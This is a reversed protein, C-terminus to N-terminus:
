CQTSVRLMSTRQSNDWISRCRQKLMKTMLLVNAVLNQVTKLSLCKGGYVPFMEKHIDKATLEKAWLFEWCFAARRYYIRWARVGNQSSFGAESCACARRSGLSDYLQVTTSGLSVCLFIIVDKVATKSGNTCRQKLRKTMLSVNAVLNQVTKLSLGKGGYVPFMEKHIDKATLEKAWLFECCFAARRYYIRWARVGNQSSFGAESCACAQRSGLSDYLQVTTSGLSVCLFVIVDM